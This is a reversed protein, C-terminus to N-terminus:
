EDLVRRVLRAPGALQAAAAQADRRLEAAYRLLGSDRLGREIEAVDVYPEVIVILVERPNVALFRAFIAWQEDQPEAGLECLTHCLYPRRPGELRGGGVCHLDLMFARIGDDLQRAVGHRQNAFFWGPQLAAAYSNHTAPFVVEDLRRDCLATAGNCAGPPADIALSRPHPAPLVVAAAAVTAVTVAAVTAALPVMSASRSAGTPQAVPARGTLAAIGVLVLLVGAAVAAVRLVLLPELLLLAGFTILLVPRTRRVLPSPAQATRRAWGGARALRKQTLQGWALTAVAVGGAAALLGATRLDRLAREV